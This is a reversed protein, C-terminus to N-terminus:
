CLHISKCVVADAARRSDAHHQCLGALCTRLFLCAAWCLICALLHVPSVHSWQSLVWHLWAWINVMLNVDAVPGTVDAKGIGVLLGGKSSPASAALVARGWLVLALLQWAQFLQM